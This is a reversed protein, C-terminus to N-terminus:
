VGPLLRHEFSSRRKASLPGLRCVYQRSIHRCNLDNGVSKAPDPQSGDDFEGFPGLDVVAAFAEVLLRPLNAPLAAEVVNERV